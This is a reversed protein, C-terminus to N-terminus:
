SELEAYNANLKLNEQVRSMFTSSFNREHRVRSGQLVFGTVGTAWLTLHIALAPSSVRGRPHHIVKVPNHTLLFGSLSNLHDKQM